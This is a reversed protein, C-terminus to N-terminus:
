FFLTLTKSCPWSQQVPFISIDLGSYGEEQLRQLRKIEGFCFLYGRHDQSSLCLSHVHGTKKGKRKLCFEGTSLNQQKKGSCELPRVKHLEYLKFATCM